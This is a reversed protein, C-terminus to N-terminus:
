KLDWLKITGDGSASALTKGDPSFAVCFVWKKHANLTVLEKRTAVDWLKVTHDSSSGASALTKGDPSFALSSVADTHGKLVALEKDKDSVDWLTIAKDLTGAALMKGDPSLCICYTASKLTNKPKGTAVDWFTITRNPSAAVVLDGKPSFAVDGRGEHTAMVTNTALDWLKIEGPIAQKYGPPVVRRGSGSALLAGDPSFAVSIVLNTHGKLTAMEKGTAVEWLKIRGEQSGPPADDGAALVKGNPSFALSWIKANLGTYAAKETGTAVDWLKINLEGGGSALTKGDPSFAM